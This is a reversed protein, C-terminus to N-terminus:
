PVMFWWSKSRRCYYKGSQYWKFWLYMTGLWWWIIKYALVKFIIYTNEVPIYLECKFFPAFNHEWWYVSDAHFHTTCHWTFCHLIIEMKTFINKNPIIFSMKKWSIKEGYFPLLYNKNYNGELFVLRVSMKSWMKAIFKPRLLSAKFINQKLPFNSELASHIVMGQAVAGEISWWGSLSQMKLLARPVEKQSLCDRLFLVLTIWFMLLIPKPDSNQNKKRWFHRM